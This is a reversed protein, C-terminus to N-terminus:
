FGMNIPVSVLVNLPRNNNIVVVGNPLMSSVILTM